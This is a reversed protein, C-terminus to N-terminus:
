GELLATLTAPRLQRDAIVAALRDLAAMTTAATGPPAAADSDHLLVIAGPRLRRAVRSAVSAPDRDRWERGWASWLVTQLGLGRATSLSGGSVQGYPPRFYRVPMGTAVRLVDAAQAVDRRIPGAPWLLHHRHWYGHVGVEHGRRVIEKVVEPHARAQQGLCFFTAAFRYTGLVDLIQPTWRPDPGDDFTLAIRSGDAPGRWRALGGPLVAPQGLRRPWWQGLVLTAPLLQASAALALSSGALRRWRSRKPM